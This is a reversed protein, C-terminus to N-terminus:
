LNTGFYNAIANVEEDGGGGWRWSGSPSPESWPTGPGRGRGCSVSRRGRGASWTGVLSVWGWHLQRTLPSCSDRRDSEEGGWGVPSRWTEEPVARSGVLHWPVYVCVTSGEIFSKTLKSPCVWFLLVIARLLLCVEKLDWSNVQRNCKLRGVSSLSRIYLPDFLQDWRTDMIQFNGSERKLQTPIYTIGRTLEIILELERTNKHM